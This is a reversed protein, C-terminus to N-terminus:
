SAHHAGSQQPRRPSFNRGGDSISGRKNLGYSVVKSVEGLRFFFFVLHMLQRLKWYIAMVLYTLMRYFGRLETDQMKYQHQIGDNNKMVM